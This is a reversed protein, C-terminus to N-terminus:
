AFLDVSPVQLLAALKEKISSTFEDKSVSGSADIDLKGFAEESIGLEDIELAQDGNSDLAEIIGSSMAEADPRPPPKMGGMQQSGAMGKMQSPDFTVSM